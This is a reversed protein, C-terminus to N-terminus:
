TASRHGGSGLPRARLSATWALGILLLGLGFALWPIASGSGSGSGPVNGAAPLALPHGAAAALRRIASIAASGLDSGPAGLGKLASPSAPAGGVGTLGYGNPMVVLLTGKYVISLEEGLFRSYTQPQRWLATISGLDMPSAIVAVHIRLGARQAKGLMAALESQQALPAGADQPLFLSQGLLVDSAPDGDARANAALWGLGLAVFLTTVLLLHISRRRANRTCDTM